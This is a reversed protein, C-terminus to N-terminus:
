LKFWYANSCLFGLCAWNLSWDFCQFLHRSSCEAGAATMHCAFVVAAGHFNWVDTNDHLGALM